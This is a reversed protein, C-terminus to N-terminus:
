RLVGAPTKWANEVRIRHAEYVADRTRQASVADLTVDPPRPSPNKDEWGGEGWASQAPRDGQAAGTKWQNSLWVKYRERAEDSALRVDSPKGYRSPGEWAGPWGPNSDSIVAGSSRWASENRRCMESHAQRAAAEGASDRAYVHGPRSGVPRGLGDTLNTADTVRVSTTAIEKQVADM